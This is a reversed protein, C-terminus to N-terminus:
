LLGKEGLIFEETRKIFRFQRNPSDKISQKYEARAYEKNGCVYKDGWHFCTIISSRDLEWIQVVYYTLM